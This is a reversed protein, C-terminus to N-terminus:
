AVALGRELEFGEDGLRHLLVSRQRVSQAADLALGVGFAGFVARVDLTDVETKALDHVLELHELRLEPVPHALLHFALEADHAWFGRVVLHAGGDLVRGALDKALGEHLRIAAALRLSDQASDLVAVALQGLNLAIHKPEGLEKLIKLSHNDLLILGNGLNLLLAVLNDVIEALAVLLNDSGDVSRALSALLLPDAKANNTPQNKM